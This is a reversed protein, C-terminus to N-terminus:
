ACGKRILALQERFSLTSTQITKPQLNVNKLAKDAEEVNVKRKREGILISPIQGSAVLKRVFAEGLNVRKAYEKISLFM